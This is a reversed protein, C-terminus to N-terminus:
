GGVVRFHNHLVPFSIDKVRQTPFVHCQSGFFPYALVKDIEQNGALTIRTRQQGVLYGDGQVASGLAAVRNQEVTLPLRLHNHFILSRRHLDGGFDKILYGPIIDDQFHLEQNDGVTYVM